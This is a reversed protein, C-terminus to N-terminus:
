SHGEKLFYCNSNSFLDCGDKIGLHPSKYRTTKTHGVQLFPIEDPALRKLRARLQPATELDSAAEDGFWVSVKQRLANMEQLEFAAFFIACGVFCAAPTRAASIVPSRPCGGRKGSDQTKKPKIKRTFISPLWGRKDNMKRHSKLTQIGNQLRTEM